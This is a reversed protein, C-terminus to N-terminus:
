AAASVRVPEPAAAAVYGATEIGLGCTRCVLELCDAPHDACDFADFSSEAACASCWRHVPM